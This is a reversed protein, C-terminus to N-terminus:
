LLSSSRRVMDIQQPTVQPPATSGALWFMLNDGGLGACEVYSVMGDRDADRDNGCEPTDTLLDFMNGDRENPHRLGLYHGAEHAMTDAVLRADRDM